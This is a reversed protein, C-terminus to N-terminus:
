MGGVCDLAKELILGLNGMGVEGHQIFNIQVKKSRKFILANGRGIIYHGINRCTAHKRIEESFFTNIGFLEWVVLM